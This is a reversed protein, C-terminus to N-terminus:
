SLPIQLALDAVKPFSELCILDHSYDIGAGGQGEQTCLQKGRKPKNYM